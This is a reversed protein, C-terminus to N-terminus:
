QPLGLRRKAEDILLATLVSIPVTLLSQGTAALRQKAREWTTDDKAADLFDHGASNLRSVAACPSNSHMTTVDVTKALGADGILYCHYGVQEDSYGDIKLERPAFGSEHQEVALLIQRILEM